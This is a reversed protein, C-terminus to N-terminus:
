NAIIFVASVSLCSGLIVCYVMKRTAMYSCLQHHTGIKPSNEKAQWPLLILFLMSLIAMVVMNVRHSDWRQMSRESRIVMLLPQHLTKSTDDHM